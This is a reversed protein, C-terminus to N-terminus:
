KELAARQAELCTWLAEEPLLELPMLLMFYALIDELQFFINL